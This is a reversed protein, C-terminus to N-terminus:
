SGVKARTACASFLTGPGTTTVPCVSLLGIRVARKGDLQSSEVSRAFDTIFTIAGDIVSGVRRRASPM